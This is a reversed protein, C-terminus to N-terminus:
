SKDTDEPSPPPRKQKPLKLAPGEGSFLIAFRTVLAGLLVYGLIVQAMLVTQGAVGWWCDPRAHVEGFGLTTMTVVSFYLAHWFGQVNGVKGEVTLMRPALLYLLAFVFAFGLFCALIRRTSRGYDSMLWFGRTVWQTLNRESWGGKTCWKKWWKERINDHLSQRTGPDTRLNDVAVGGFDTDRDIESEWLNTDTDVVALQFDTGQLLTKPMNVNQLRAHELCANQLKAGCLQAGELRARQLRASELNAGSLHANELHARQLSAGQLNAGELHVSRYKTPKGKGKFSRSKSIKGKFRLSGYEKGNREGTWLLAKDLTMGQLEAGCLEIEETPNEKRWNNWETVDRKESCSKLRRYQEINCRMGVAAPNFGNDWDEWRVVKSM